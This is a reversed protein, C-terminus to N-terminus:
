FPGTSLWREMQALRDNGWFPEGDVFFFPAGFVGREVARDGVRKLAEKVPAQDAAEMVAAADVGSEALVDRVVQAESLNRGQVFYARFARHVFDKLREPFREEVVLAARAAQLTGIPFPEPLAFPIAAMRASRAFDRRSYEGKLPVETLPRQGSVRFIAGLLVPLYRVARGHRAAVDEIQEAALYAYPSSFDFYFEIPTPVRAEAINAAALPVSGGEANRIM